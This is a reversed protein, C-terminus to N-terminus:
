QPRSAAVATHELICRLEVGVLNSEAPSQRCYRVVCRKANMAAIRAVTEPWKAILISVRLVTTPAVHHALLLKLGVESVDVTETFERWGGTDSIVVLPVRALVRPTQRRNAAGVLKFDTTVSPVNQQSFPTMGLTAAASLSSINRQSVPTMGLIEAAAVFQFDLAEQEARNAILADVLGDVKEVARDLDSDEPFKEEVAMADDADDRAVDISALAALTKHEDPQVAQAKLYAAQALVDNGQRSYEESAAMFSAHARQKSGKRHWLEGLTMLLSANSPDIEAMRQYADLAKDERGARGYADAVYAYQRGADGPLGQAMYCGALQAASDLDTPDLRLLKKLLAIAKATSGQHRYGQAVSSFIRKAEENLGVRAYLDGLTNLTTLDTPDWNVLKRYEEIAGTIRGRSLHREATRLTKSCDFSM